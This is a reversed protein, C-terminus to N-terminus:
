QPVPWPLRTAGGAYLDLESVRHFIAAVACFRNWSPMLDLEIVLSLLEAVGCDIGAVVRLAFDGGRSSATDTTAVQPSPRDTRRYVRARGRDVDCVLRWQSARGFASLEPEGQVHPLVHEAELMSQQGEDSDALVPSHGAVQKASASAAAETHASSEDAAEKECASVAEVCSSKLALAGLLGHSCSLLGLAFCTCALLARAGLALSIIALLALSQGRRRGSTSLLGLLTGWAAVAIANRMVHDVRHLIRICGM